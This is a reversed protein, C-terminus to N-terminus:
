GEYWDTLSAGAISKDVLDFVLSTPAARAGGCSAEVGVTAIPPLLVRGACPRHRRVPARGRLKIADPQSADFRTADFAMTVQPRRRVETLVVSVIAGTKATAGDPGLPFRLSCAGNREPGAHPAVKLLVEGACSWVTEHLSGALRSRGLCGRVVSAAYSDGASSRSLEM